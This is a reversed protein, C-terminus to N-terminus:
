FDVSMEFGVVWADPIDTQGNPNLVYQGDVTTFFWESFQFRHNLEFVLEYSQGPLDDSFVGLYFAGATIDGDRGNFLGQYYAGGNASYPFLNISQRPAVSFFGWLSLGQDMQERYVMQNGLLYLGWNGAVIREPDSFRMYDSTDFYGGFRYQGPLYSSDEGQGVQLEGEAVTLVGDEPNFKFVLGHMDNNQANIDANYAGVSLSLFDLARVTGRAGWQSFPPTTFSPLNELLQLPNPNVGASVYYVFADSTAFDAGASLRGLAIEIRDNALTQLLNIQSIGFVDGIFIQSVDIVNNIDEGSLDRGLGQYYGFSFSTGTLGFLTDLDFDVGGIFSGSYAASQREGGVPNALLDHAYNLEPDIGM